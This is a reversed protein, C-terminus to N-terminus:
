TLLASPVSFFLVQLMDGKAFADVVNPPVIHSFFEAWNMSGGDSALKQAQALNEETQPIGAGPQVWHSVFLGIILALTTVIEFYIIGKAGIRGVRKLDGAGAIGLVLTFFIIPAIVMRIMNIFTESIIKAVPAFGPFAWGVIVCAAIGILVQVYLLKLIRM